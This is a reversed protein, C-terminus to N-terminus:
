LRKENIRQVVKEIGEFVKSIAKPYDQNNTDSWFRNAPMKGRSAGTKTFREKTGADVLHSHRGGGNFGTLVGAKNRKVRVQFSNLLHGTARKSGKLRQSLRQRGGVKLVQGAANLGSKLAKNKEFETLERILFDISDKDIQRVEIM